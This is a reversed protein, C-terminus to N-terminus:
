RLKAILRRFLANIYPLKVSGDKGTGGHKPPEKLQVGGTSYSPPFGDFKKALYNALGSIGQEVSYLWSLGSDWKLRTMDFLTPRDSKVNMRVRIAPKGNSAVGELNSVTMVTSQKLEEYVPEIPDGKSHEIGFFSFLNGYGGLVGAKDSSGAPDQYGAEIDKTVEHDLFEDLFEQKAVDFKQQAVNQIRTAGGPSKAVRDAILRYSMRVNSM